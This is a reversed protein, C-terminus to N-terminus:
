VEIADLDEGLVLPGDWDRRVDAELSRMLEASKERFHTLVLKKVKNRTAIKGVVGSTTHVHRALLQAHPNTLEADALYCDQVLVDAGDALRDLGKCDITDGSIALVKGDAEVRYGLAVWVLERPIDLGHGHVVRQATVRWRPTEAVVGADVEVAEVPKWGGVGPEGQDRFMIDKAYVHNLLGDVIERIGSPGYVRLPRRRGELWTSLIMDDLDGIHDYHHHTIFVPNVDSLRVGARLLQTTVGRGSDFLLREDGIEVVLAPGSRRPDPRPGGTGLLTVKM